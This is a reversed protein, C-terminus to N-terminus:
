SVKIDFKRKFFLGHFDEGIALRVPCPVVSARAVHRRRRSGM